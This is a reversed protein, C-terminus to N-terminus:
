TRSDQGDQSESCIRIQDAASGSDPMCVRRVFGTRLTRETVPLGESEAFTRNYYIAPLKHRAALEVLQKNRSGLFPDETVLLAVAGQQTTTAFAANIEVDTRAHV